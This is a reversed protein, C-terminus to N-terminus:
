CHHKKNLAAKHLEHHESPDVAEVQSLFADLDIKKGSLWTSTVKIKDIEFPDISYPDTNLQAFDALKGVEISGIKDDMKLQFAANITSARLADDLSVAQQPGHLKGSPTKRTVASKINLLPLPPSVMGDNHFSVVAGSRFADGFRQWQSGSEPEFLTGELLDGWYIFQFPSMSITIGLAAARTFQDSRASGVHEVRWRHDTKVLDYKNLAYEYADLVVDLAVDGNVHFAFQWGSTAYTDLVQDMQARTYNMMEEGHAGPAIGAAKTTDNELYAMTTAITGVWPSGDAWLKIGQKRLMDEPASIALKEGADPETSMHYLSVRIPSDPLSALANYSSLLPANFSHESTATVGNEAMYRYWKAASLLPHPISRTFVPYAVAMVAGAEYGRGNSTGDANRGFSAGVPDAPPVNNEWGLFAMHATNFYIEHGSNDLVIVPRSPFHEDLEVCTLEPAGQLSRDLGNFLLPQGAETESDLKKWLAVVDEYTPYGVYPAIWHAPERTTLGSLVPHNHPDIFGPLLVDSGLDTVTAQPYNGTLESRSGVAAILGTESDIAVAEAHTQAPNMTIINSAVVIQDVAM